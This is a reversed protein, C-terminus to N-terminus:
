LARAKTWMRRDVHRSAPRRRSTAGALTRIPRRDTVFRVKPQPPSAGAEQHPRARGGHGAPSAAGRRLCLLWGPFGASRYIEPPQSAIPGAQSRRGHVAAAAAKPDPAGHRPLHPGALALGLACDAVPISGDAWALEDAHGPAFRDFNAIANKCAKPM